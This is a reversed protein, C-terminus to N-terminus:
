YRRRTLKRVKRRKSGKRTKRRGGTKPEAAPVDASNMPVYAIKVGDEYLKFVAISTKAPNKMGALRFAGLFFMGLYEAHAFGYAYTSGQVSIFNPIHTKTDTEYKTKEPQFFAGGGQPPPGSPDENAGAAPKAAAAEKETAAKAAAEEAETPPTIGTLGKVLNALQTAQARDGLNM